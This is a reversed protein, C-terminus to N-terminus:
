AWYVHTLKMRNLLKCGQMRIGFDVDLAKGSSFTPDDLLVLTEVVRHLFKKKELFEAKNLSVIKGNIAYEFSFDPCLDPALNPAEKLQRRGFSSADSSVEEEDKEEEQQSESVVNRLKRRTTAGNNEATWTETLENPERNYFGGSSGPHLWTELVIILLGEKVGKLTLLLWGSFSDFVLGGREDNHGVFLCPSKPDRGCEDADITGNCYV